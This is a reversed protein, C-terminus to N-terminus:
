CLENTISIVKEVIAQPSIATLCHFDGYRCTKGGAITCPQCDCGSVVADGERQNWGIFGCLPSTAGWISIVRTGCLSALHMNASDMTIMLNLQSMIAVEEDLRYKEGIAEVHNYKDAWYRVTQKEKGAGSFLLVRFNKRESLLRVVTEMQVLPYTKNAYRAFPAIGVIVQGDKRNVFDSANPIAYRFSLTFQFGLRQFVQEYRKIYPKQPSRRHLRLLCFRDFRGKNLVSVRKGQLMCYFDIMWSRLVNHMDAVMGIDERDILRLLRVMGYLTKIENRKVSLVQVNRPLHDFLSTFRSLTLVKIQRDPYTRALSGVVPIVMAVDGLASLRIVLLASTDDKKM